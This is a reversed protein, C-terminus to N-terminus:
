RIEGGQRVAPEGFGLKVKLKLAVKECGRGGGVNGTEEANNIKFLSEYSGPTSKLDEWQIEKLGGNSEPSITMTCKGETTTVEVEYAKELTMLIGKWTTEGTREGESIKYTVEPSILVKAAFEGFHGTCESYTATLDQEKTEIEKGSTKPQKYIVNGCVIDATGDVTIKNQTSKAQAGGAEIKYASASSCFVACALTVLIPLHRKLKM